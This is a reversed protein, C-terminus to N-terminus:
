RFCFPSVKNISDKPADTKFHNNQIPHNQIQPIKPRTNSNPANRSTEPFYKFFLLDNFDIYLHVSQSVHYKFCYLIKLLPILM